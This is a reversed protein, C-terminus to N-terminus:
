RRRCSAATTAAQRYRHRDQDNRHRQLDERAVRCQDRAVDPGLLHRAEQEDPHDHDARHDSHALARMEFDVQPRPEAGRASAATLSTALRPTSAHRQYEHPGADLERAEGPVASGLQGLQRQPHNMDGPRQSAKRPQHKEALLHPVVQHDEGPFCCAHAAGAQELGAGSRPNQEAHEERQHEQAHRDGEREAQRAQRDQHELRVEVGARQHALCEVGVVREDQQRHRKEQQRGVQHVDAADRVPQHAERAVQDAM